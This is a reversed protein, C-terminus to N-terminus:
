DSGRPILELDISSCVTDVIFCVVVMEALTILDVLSFYIIFFGSISSCEFGSTLGFVEMVVMETFFDSFRSSTDCASSPKKRRNMLRLPRLVFFSRVAGIIASFSVTSACDNIFDDSSFVGAILFLASSDIMSIRDLTLALSMGFLPSIFDASLAYGFSFLSTTSCLVFLVVM